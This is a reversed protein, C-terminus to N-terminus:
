FQRFLLLSMVLFPTPTASTTLANTCWTPMAVTPTRTGCCHFLVNPLGRCLLHGLLGFILCCCQFIEIYISFHISLVILFFFFFFFIPRIKDKNCGRHSANLLATNDTCRYITILIGVQIDWTRVKHKMIGDKM